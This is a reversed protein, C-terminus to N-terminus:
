TLMRAAASSWCRSRCPTSNWQPLQLLYDVGEIGDIGTILPQSGTAIVYARARGAKGDIQLTRDDTFRAEGAVIPFGWADAVDAYKHERLRGSLEDKQAVLAGLDVAGASTPGGPFSNSPAAHRHLGDM